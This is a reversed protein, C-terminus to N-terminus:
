RSVEAAAGADPHDGAVAHRGVGRLSLWRLSGQALLARSDGARAIPTLAAVSRETGVFGLAALALRGEEGPSDLRALLSEESASELRLLAAAAALRVSRDSDALAAALSESAAAIGEDGLRWAAWARRRAQPSSKLADALSAGRERAMLVDHKWLGERALERTAVGADPADALMRLAAASESSAFEGLPDVLWPALAPDEAARSVARAGRPDGIRALAYATAVIMDRREIADVLAPVARPSRLLGLAKIACLRLDDNKRERSAQILADLAEVDGVQGLSQAALCPRVTGRPDALAALLAPAARPDRLEGLIEIARWREAPEGTAATRLLGSWDFRDFASEDLPESALITSRGCSLEAALRATQLTRHVDESRGWCALALLLRPAFLVGSRLPRATM